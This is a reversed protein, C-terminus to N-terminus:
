SYAHPIILTQSQPLMQLSADVYAGDVREGWVCVGLSPVRRGFHAHSNPAFASSVVIIIDVAVIKLHKCSALCGALLMERLISKLHFSNEGNLVYPFQHESFNPSTCTSQIHFTCTTIHLALISGLNHRVGCSASKVEAVWTYLALGPARLAHDQPWM